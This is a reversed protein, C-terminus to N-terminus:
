GDLVVTCVEARDPTSWCREEWGWVVVVVYLVSCGCFCHLSVVVYAACFLSFFSVASARQLQQELGRRLETEMRAQKQASEELGEYATQLETLKHMYRVGKELQDKLLTEAKRRTIHPSCARHATHPTRHAINTPYTATLRDTGHTCRTPTCM